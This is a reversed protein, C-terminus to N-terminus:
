LADRDPSQIFSVRARLGLCDVERWFNEGPAAYGALVLRVPEDVRAALAAYADLLLGVNKRADHLRGVCLIYPPGQRDRAAGPVVQILDCGAVAATLARRPQYRQFELECGVAGVSVFPRGRWVGEATRVGRFWSAPRSFAVGLDDRASSPLSVLALDFAGSHE